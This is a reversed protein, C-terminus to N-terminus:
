RAAAAELVEDLKLGTTAEYQAALIDLSTSWRWTVTPMCWRCRPGSRSPFWRPTACRWRPSRRM